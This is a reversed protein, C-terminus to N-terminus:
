FHKNTQKDELFHKNIKWFHKNTQENTQRGVENNEGYEVLCTESRDGHPSVTERWEYRAEPLM